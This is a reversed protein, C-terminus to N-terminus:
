KSFRSVTLTLIYILNSMLHLTFFNRVETTANLVVCTLAGLYVICHAVFIYYVHSRPNILRNDVRCSYAVWADLWFPQRTVSYDSRSFYGVHKQFCAATSLLHRHVLVVVLFMVIPTQLGLWCAVWPSTWGTSSYVILTVVVICPLIVLGFIHAAQM